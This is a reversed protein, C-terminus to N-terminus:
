KTTFAYGISARVCEVLIHDPLAVIEVDGHCKATYITERTFSNIEVIFEDVEKGCVACM